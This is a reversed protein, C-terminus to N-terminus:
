QECRAENIKRIFREYEEQSSAMGLPLQCVRLKVGSFGVGAYNLITNYSVKLDKALQPLPRVVSLDDPVYYQYSM